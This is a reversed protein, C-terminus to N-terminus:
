VLESMFGIARTPVINWERATHFILDSKTSPFFYSIASFDLSNQVTNWVIFEREKIAVFSVSKKPALLCGILAKLHWLWWWAAAASNRLWFLYLLLAKKIIHLKLTLKTPTSKRNEEEKRSWTIVGYKQPQLRFQRQYKPISTEPLPKPFSQVCLWDFFARIHVRLFFLLLTIRTHSILAFWDSGIAGRAIPKGKGKGRRKPVHYSRIIM